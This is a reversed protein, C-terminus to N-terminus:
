LLKIKRSQAIQDAFNESQMHFIESILSNLKQTTEKTTILHIMYSEISILM